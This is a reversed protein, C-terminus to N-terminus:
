SSHASFREIAKKIKGSRRREFESIAWNEVKMHHTITEGNVLWSQFDAIRLEWARLPEGPRRKLSGQILDLVEKKRHMNRARKLEEWLPEYSKPTRDKIKFHGIEHLLTLFYMEEPLLRMKRYKPGIRYAYSLGLSIAEADTEQRPSLSIVKGLLDSQGGAGASLRSDFCVRIGPLYSRAFENLAELLARRKMRHGRKLKSASVGRNKRLM